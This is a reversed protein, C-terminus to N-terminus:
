DSKERATIGRVDFNRGVKMNGSLDLMSINLVLFDTSLIMTSQLIEGPQLAM